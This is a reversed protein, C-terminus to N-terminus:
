RCHAVGCLYRLYMRRRHPTICFCAWTLWFSCAVCVVEVFTRGLGAPRTFTRFAMVLALSALTPAGLPALARSVYRRYSFGFQRCISIPLVCCDIVAVTALSGLAVGVVGLFHTLIISLFLNSLAGVAVIKVFSANRETGTVIAFCAHGQLQLVLALSLAVLIPYSANYGDGVWASIIRGGYACLVVVFPLALGLSLMVSETLLHFQRDTRGMADFHAYAPMLVDIPKAAVMRFLNVLKAAVTYYAINSVPLMMGIILSDAGYAVTGCVAIVWNRSGFRLLTRAMAWRAAGLRITAEPFRKAVLWCGAVGSVVTTAVATIALGVIGYGSAVVVIQALSSLVAIAVGYGAMLDLRGVGFLVASQVTFLFVVAQSIGLVLLCSKAEALSVAHLDFLLGAAAVIAGTILVVVIAIAFYLAFATGLVQELRRNDRTAQCEAVRKATAMGLGVELLGTYGIVCGFLTWLGFGDAGLHQILFRTAVIGIVTGAFTSLYGALTNRLIRSASANPSSDGGSPTVHESTVVQTEEPLVSRPLVRSGSATALPSSPNPRPKSSMPSDDPIHDVDTANSQKAAVV